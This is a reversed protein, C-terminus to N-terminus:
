MCDLVIDYLQLEVDMLAVCPLLQTKLSVHNVYNGSESLRGCFQMRFQGLFFGEEQSKDKLRPEQVGNEM